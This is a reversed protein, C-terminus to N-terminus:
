PNQGGSIGNGHGTGEGRNAGGGQGSRDGNDQLHGPDRTCNACDLVEAPPVEGIYVDPDTYTIGDSGNQFAGPGDDSYYDGSPPAWALDSLAVMSAGVLLIIKIM